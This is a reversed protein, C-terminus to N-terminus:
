LPTEPTDITSASFPARAAPGPSRQFIPGSRCFKGPRLRSARCRGFNDDATALSPQAGLCLLPAPVGAPDPRAARAAPAQGFPQRATCEPVREDTRHGTGSVAAGALRGAACQSSVGHRRPVLQWRHRRRDAAARQHPRHEGSEKVVGAARCSTKGRRALRRHRRANDASCRNGRTSRPM